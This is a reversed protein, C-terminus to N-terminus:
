KDRNLDLQPSLKAGTNHVDRKGTTARPTKLIRCGAGKEM